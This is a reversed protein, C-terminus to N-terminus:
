APAAPSSTKAARTSFLDRPPIPNPGVSGLSGAPIEIFQTDTLHYFSTDNRLVPFYASRAVERAHEDEQVKLSAIRVDHNHKLALEVAQQLNVTHSVSSMETQAVACVEAALLASTLLLLRINM